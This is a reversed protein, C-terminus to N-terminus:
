TSALSALKSIVRSRVVSATLRPRSRSAPREANSARVESSTSLILSGSCRSLQAPLQRRKPQQAWHETPKIVTRRAQTPCRGASARPAQDTTGWGPLSDTRRSGLAGSTSSVRSSPRRGPDCRRLAKEAGAGASRPM